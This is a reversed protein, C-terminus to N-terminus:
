SEDAPKQNEYLQVIAYARKKVMEILQLPMIVEVKDGFRMLWTVLGESVACNTTIMLKDKNTIIKEDNGFRDIFQELVETDFRIQTQMVEGSYMNFIKSRYSKGDSLESSVQSFDRIPKKVISVKKMRDIRTHMLNNYKPNNSVLYYYSNDWITSYPNVIHEREVIEVKKSESDLRKKSYTFKIQRNQMIAKNIVDMTYYIEENTCKLSNYNLEQNQVYKAQPESCLTCIKEMLEDTKKQTIFNASHMADALLKVEPLQFLRNGIYYGSLPVKTTIIDVGYERITKIDSYISKKECNIGEQALLDRLTEVSLPNDEDSYQELFKLLYLLKLKTYNASQM